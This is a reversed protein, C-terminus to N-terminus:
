ALLGRERGRAPPSEQSNEQPWNPFGDPNTKMEPRSLLERSIPIKDDPQEAYKCLEEFVALMFNISQMAQFYASQQLPPSLSVERQRKWRMWKSEWGRGGLVNMSLSDWLTDLTHSPAVCVCGKFPVWCVVVRFHMSGRFVQLLEMETPLLPLYSSWVPHYLM